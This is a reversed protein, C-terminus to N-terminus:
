LTSIRPAYYFSPKSKRLVLISGSKTGLALEIMGEVVKEMTIGYTNLVEQKMVDGLNELIPTEVYSPCIAVVRIKYINNLHSLSRTLHIVGAKTAAYVPSFPIPQLGGVSATNIIVGGNSQKMYHIAVQAVIIVATLNVDIVKKWKMDIGEDFDETMAIGANNCVIDIKEFKELAFQFADKVSQFDTV